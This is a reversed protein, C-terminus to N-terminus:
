HPVPLYPFTGTTKKSANEGGAINQASLCTNEKNDDPALGLAPITNGFLVGLELGIVDDNPARGGFAKEVENSLFYEPDNGAPTAGALNVSYEDPYLIGQLAAGYDPTGAAPGTPGYRVADETTKIDALITPDAYPEVANSKQHDQFPEFVEKIAPRSLREIQIYSVVNPPPPPTLTVGGNNGCGAVGFGLTLTALITTANAYKMM